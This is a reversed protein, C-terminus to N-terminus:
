YVESVWPVDSSYEEFAASEAQEPDSGTSEFAAMDSSNYDHYAEDLVIKLDNGSSSRRSSSSQFSRSAHDSYDHISEDIIIRKEAASAATYALSASIALTLLARTFITKKTMAIDELNQAVLVFDLTLLGRYVM